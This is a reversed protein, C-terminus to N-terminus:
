EVLLRKPLLFHQGDRRRRQCQLDEGNESVVKPLPDAIVILLLLQFGPALSLKRISNLSIVLAICYQLQQTHGTLLQLQLFYAAWVLKWPHRLRKSYWVSDSSRLSSTSITSVPSDLKTRSRSRQNPAQNGSPATKTQYQGHRKRWHRRKYSGEGQSRSTDGKSEDQVVFCHAGAFAM